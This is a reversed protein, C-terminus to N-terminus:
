QEKLVLSRVGSLALKNIMASLEEVPISRDSRLWAKYVSIEGALVFHIVFETAQPDTHIQASVEDRILCIIRNEFKNFFGSVNDAELMNRLFPDNLGITNDLLDFLRIPDKLDEIIDTEKLTTQIKNIIDDELEDVLQYVGTYYNYFTKRNIDALRSIDTVSIENVDKDALLTFFAKKIAKKTKIVRRDM